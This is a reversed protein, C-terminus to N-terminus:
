SYPDPYGHCGQKTGMAVSAPPSFLLPHLVVQSRWLLAPDSSEVTKRYVQRRNLSGSRVLSPDASGCRRLFQARKATREEEALRRIQELEEKTESLEKLPATLKARAVPDQSLCSNVVEQFKSYESLFRTIKKEEDHEFRSKDLVQFPLDFFIFFNWCIGKSSVIFSLHLGIGFTHSSPGSHSVFAKLDERDREQKERERRLKENTARLKAHADRLELLDYQLDNIQKRMDQQESDFSAKVSDMKRRAEAKHRDREKEVEFLTAKLDRAMTNLEAILKKQSEREKQWALEMKTRSGAIRARGSEILAEEELQNIKSRLEAIQIEFNTKEALTDANVRSAELKAEAVEDELQQVKYRLSATTEHDEDTTKDKRAKQLSEIMAKYSDREHRYQKNLEKLARMEESIREARNDFKLKMLNAAAKNAKEEAALKGQLEEIERRYHDSDSDSSVVKQFKSMREYDLVKVKLDDAEKRLNSLQSRAVDAEIKLQMIQLVTTITTIMHAYLCSYKGMSMNYLANLLHLPSFSYCPFPHQLLIVLPLPNQMSSVLSLQAFCSLQRPRSSFIRFIDLDKSFQCLKLSCLKVCCDHEKAETTTASSSTERRGPLGSFSLRSSAIAARLAQRRTCAIYPTQVGQGVQSDRDELIHKFREREVEWGEGATQRFSDKLERMQKQIELKEKIWNDAKWNYTKRLNDLETQITDRDKTVRELENSGVLDDKKELKEKLDKITTKQQAVLDELRKNSSSGSKVDGASSSELRKELSEIKEKRQQNIRKSKAWKDEVDKIRTELREKEDLSAIAKEKAKDLKERLDSSKGKEKALEKKLSDVEHKFTKIGEETQELNSNNRLKLRDVERGLRSKEQNSSKLDKRVEVLEEELKKCEAEKAVRNGQYMKNEMKMREISQLSLKQHDLEGTMRKLDAKLKDNEAVLSTKEKKLRMIEASDFKSNGRSYENEISKRTEQKLQAELHKVKEQLAAKAAELQEVASAALERKTKWSSGSGSASALLENQAKLMEVKEELAEKSVRLDAVEHQLKVVSKPKDAERLKAELNVIEQEKMVYRTRMTNLEQQVGDLQQTLDFDSSKSRTVVRRNGVVVKRREETLQSTISDIEKSYKLNDTLLGDVRKRLIALEREAVELQVSLESNNDGPSKTSAKSSMKKLQQTISDNEDELRSMRLRMDTITEEAMSLQEKVDTERELADQYDKFLQQEDPPMEHQCGGGMQQQKEKEALSKEVKKLKFQLVRCNKSAVELERKLNRYEDDGDERFNDQVEELEGELTQVSSQLKLNDQELESCRKELYKVRLEAEKAANRASSITPMFRHQQQKTSQIVEELEKIKDVHSKKEKGAQQLLAEQERIKDKLRGLEGTLDVVKLNLFSLNHIRINDNNGVSRKSLTPFQDGKLRDYYVLVAINM